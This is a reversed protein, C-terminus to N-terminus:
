SHLRSHPGGTVPRAKGYRNLLRPYKRDLRLFLQRFREKRYYPTVEEYSALIERNRNWDEETEYTWSPFIDSEGHWYAKHRDCVFYHNKHLNLYRDFRHCKPCCGFRNTIDNSWNRLASRISNGNMSLLKSGTFAHVFNM